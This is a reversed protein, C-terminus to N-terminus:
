KPTESGKRRLIVLLAATAVVVVAVMVIATTMAKNDSKPVIRETEQGADRQQGSGHSEVTGEGTSDTESDKTGESGPAAVGRNADAQAKQGEMDATEDKEEIDATGDKQEKTDAAEERQGESDAATGGDESAGTLQAYDASPEDLCVWVDRIGFYYGVCGWRHGSEDTYVCYYEPAYDNMPQTYYEQSGPYEWFRFEEGQPVGELEGSQKVLEAAHEERFAISDYVVEMYDMPMWGTMGDYDDYIGWVIGEKDEYTFSIAARHGNEWVDVPEPVEPSVYLIVKGDPGNATYQRNVYICESSHESYFSDMPEWIVDAKVSLTGLVCCLAAAVVSFVKKGIKM